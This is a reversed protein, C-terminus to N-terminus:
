ETILGSQHHFYILKGYTSISNDVCTHVEENEDTFVKPNNMIMQATSMIESLAGFQGAPTRQAIVGLGFICTQTLDPNAQGLSKVVELMKPTAQGVIFNFLEDTGFELCDVLLCLSALLEHPKSKHINLLKQGYLPLLKQQVQSSCQASMTKLLTGALDMVYDWVKDENDLQENFAEIDEEDM